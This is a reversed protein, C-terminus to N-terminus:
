KETFKLLLSIARDMKTEQDDSHRRTDKKFEEFNEKLNNHVVNPTYNEEVHKMRKEMLEANGHVKNLTELMRWIFKTLTWGGTVLAGILLIVVVWLLFIAVGLPLKHLEAM